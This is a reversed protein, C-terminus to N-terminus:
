ERCYRFRCLMHRRLQQAVNCLVWCPLLLCVVLLNLFEDSGSATRRLKLAHVDAFNIIAREASNRKYEGAVTLLARM